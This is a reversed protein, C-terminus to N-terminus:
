NNQSQKEINQHYIQLNSAKGVDNHSKQAKLQLHGVSNNNQSGVGTPNDIMEQILRQRENKKHVVEINM